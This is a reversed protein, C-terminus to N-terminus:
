RDYRSNFKKIIQQAVDAAQVRIERVATTEWETGRRLPGVAYLGPIGHVIGQKDTPLGLGHPGAPVGLDQRLSVLLPNDSQSYRFSPGSADIAFDVPISEVRGGQKRITVSHGKQYRIVRGHELMINLDGHIRAASIAPVRHRYRNLIRDLHRLFQRQESLTLGEWIENWRPRIAEFLDQWDRKTSQDRIWRTGGRLSKPLGSVQHAHHGDRHIEPLNSSGSIMRIIAKPYGRRAALAADIGTLGTGVVAIQDAALPWSHPEFPKVLGLGDLGYGAAYGLALVVMDAPISDGDMSVVWGKALGTVPRRIRRFRVHSRHQASNLRSRLYEGYWARPVFAESRTDEKESEILWQLFDDPHDPLASMKGAPVNLLHYPDATTYALGGLTERPEFLIVELNEDGSELLHYATMMGAFGGGIVAVTQM